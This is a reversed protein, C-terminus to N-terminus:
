CRGGRDSVDCSHTGPIKTLANMMEVWDGLRLLAGLEDESDVGSSAVGFPGSRRTATSRFGAEVRGV